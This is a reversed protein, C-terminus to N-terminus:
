CKSGATGDVAAGGASDKTGNPLCPAGNGAGSAVFNVNGSGPVNGAVPYPAQTALVVNSGTVSNVSQLPAIWLVKEFVYVGPYAAGGNGYGSCDLFQASGTIKVTKTYIGPLLQGSSPSTTYTQDALGPCDTSTAPSVFPSPPAGAAALPDSL